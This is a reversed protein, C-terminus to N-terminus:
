SLNNVAVSWLFARLTEDPLASAAEAAAAAEASPAAVEAPAEGEAGAAAAAAVAASVAAANASLWAKAAEATLPPLGAPLLKRLRELLATTKGKVLEALAADTPAPEADAAALLAKAM